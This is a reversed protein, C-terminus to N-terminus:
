ARRRRFFMAAIGIFGLMARSPEPIAAINALQVAAVNPYLGGGSLPSASLSGVRITASAADLNSDTPSSSDQWIEASTLIAQQTAAGPTAANMVWLAINRGVIDTTNSLDIIGSTADYSVGGEVTGPITLPANQINSYDFFGNVGESAISLTSTLVETFAAELTASDAGWDSFGDTFTGWRLISPTSLATTGNNLVFGRDISNTFLTTSAESSTSIGFFALLALSGFISKKM